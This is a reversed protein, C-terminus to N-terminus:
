VAGWVKGGSSGGAGRNVCYWQAVVMEVCSLLLRGASRPGRGAMDGLNIQPEEEEEQKVCRRLLESEHHRLGLAGVYRHGRRGSRRWDVLARKAM